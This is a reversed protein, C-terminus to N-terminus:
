DIDIAGGRDKGKRAAEKMAAKSQSAAQQKVQNRKAVEAQAETKMRERELSKWASKWIDNIISLSIDSKFSHWNLGKYIWQPIDKEQIDLSEFMLKWDNKSIITTKNWLNNDSFTKYAKDIIENIIESDINSSTRINWQNLITKTEELDVGSVLITTALKSITNEITNPISCANRIDEYGTKIEGYVGNLYKGKATKENIREIKGINVKNQTRDILEYIDNTIYSSTRIDKNEKSIAIGKMYKYYKETAQYGEDTPTLLGLRGLYGLTRRLLDREPILIDARKEIGNSTLQYENEHGKLYGQKKLNDLRWTLYKFQKEAEYNPINKDLTERLKDKKISGNEKYIQYLLKNIDAITSNIKYIGTEQDKEIHGKEVQKGLQKSVNQYENDTSCLEKLREDTLSGKSEKFYKNLKNLNIGLWKGEETSSLNGEQDITIYDRTKTEMETEVLEMFREYYRQASQNTIESLLTEKLHDASLIGGDAKDIYSLTVNADYRTFEMEEPINFKEIAENSLVYAEKKDDYEFYGQSEETFSYKGTIRDLEVYGNLTLKEIRNKLIDIEQEAKVVNVHSEDDTYKEYISNELEQLTISNDEGFEERVKTDFKGIRLEEPDKNQLSGFISKNGLLETFSVNKVEEGDCELMRLIEKEARDLNKVKLVEEIGKNTLKYQDGQENLIGQGCLVKLQKELEQSDNKIVGKIQSFAEKETAGSLKLSSLYHDINKSSSLSNIKQIETVNDRIHKIIDKISGEPYNLDEKETFDKITNLTDQDNYGSRILAVAVKHLVKTQEPILTIKNDMNKIFDVAKQSLDRDVYFINERQSEAAGKLIIQCVRDRIDTYANSRAKEIADEHTTYIKTLDEVAKLNRELNASFEHKSLLGDAISYVLDKVNEPMFKLMVRGHGPMIAALNKIQEALQLEDDSYLKPCISESNVESILSSIEISTNQVEKLLRTAQSVDNNALDRILDRMINKEHLLTMREDAFIEDTLLKRMNNLKRESVIGLRVEPEKEWILVHSHPHGKEMHVAAVWRLNEMSVKMERALDPVKNRLMDQWVSKDLYGVNKAEEERVSVICRWVYGNANTIEDRICDLDEVGEPGFLGHSNPRKDIYKAYNENDLPTHETEKNLENKLDNETISKDVGPRTAIYKVHMANKMSTNKLNPHKFTIKLIVKSM